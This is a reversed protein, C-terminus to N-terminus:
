TLLIGDWFWWYMIASFLFPQWIMTMSQAMNTNSLQLDCLQLNCIHTTTFNCTTLLSSWRTQLSTKKSFHFHLSTSAHTKKSTIYTYKEWVNQFLVWWCLVLFSYSTELNNSTFNLWWEVFNFERWLHLECSSTRKQNKAFCCFNLVNEACLFENNIIKINMYTSTHTGGM